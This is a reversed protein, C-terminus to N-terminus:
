AFSDLFPKPLLQFVLILLPQHLLYILLSHRGFAALLPFHLTKMWNPPPQVTLRRGLGAGALFLFSWPILPFYDGSSFGPFPFGLFALAPHSYLQPPLPFLEWGLFGLARGPVSYTLVFAGLFLPISLAPSLRDLWPRLLPFLLMCSGLLHLIGFWITMEPLLVLTVITLLAALSLATLGRKLNSRSFYCTVGALAVFIGAFFPQLFAILPSALLTLNVQYLNVLDFGGHYLVVLVICLGRLEDLATLRTSVPNM